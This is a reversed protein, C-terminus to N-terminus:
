EFLMKVGSHRIWRPEIMGAHLHEKFGRQARFGPRVETIVILAADCATKPWSRNVGSIDVAEFAPLLQHFHDVDASGIQAGREHGLKTFSTDRRIKLLGIGHSGGRINRILEALFEAANFTTAM